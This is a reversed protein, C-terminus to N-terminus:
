KEEALWKLHRRTEGKHKVLANFAGIPMHLDLRGFSATWKNGERLNLLIIGRGTLGISWGEERDEEHWVYTDHEFM